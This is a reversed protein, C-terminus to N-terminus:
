VGAPIDIEVGAEEALGTLTNRDESSLSNPPLFSVLTDGILALSLVAEENISASEGRIGGVPTGTVVTVTECESTTIDVTGNSAESSGYDIFFHVRDCCNCWGKEIADRIDDIMKQSWKVPDDFENDPCIEKLKDQVDQVMKVSWAIGQDPEIEDLTPEASCGSPPDNILDNIDDIIKKWKATSMSESM